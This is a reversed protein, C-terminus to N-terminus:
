GVGIPIHLDAQYWSISAFLLVAVASLALVHINWSTVFALGLLTVFLGSGLYHHMSRSALVLLDPFHALPTLVSLTVM